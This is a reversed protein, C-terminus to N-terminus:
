HHKWKISMKMKTVKGILQCEWKLSMEMRTVNGHLSNKKISIGM